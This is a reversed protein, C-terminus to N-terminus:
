NDPCVPSLSAPFLASLLDINQIEKAGRTPLFHLVAFLIDWISQRSTLSQSARCSQFVYVSTVIGSILIAGLTSNLVSMDPPPLAFLVGPAPEKTPDMVPPVLSLTPSGSSISYIYRLLQMYLAAQLKELPEFQVCYSCISTIVDQVPASGTSRPNLGPVQSLPRSHAAARYSYDYRASDRYTPTQLIQVIFVRRGSSAHVLLIHHYCVDCGSDVTCRCGLSIPGRACHYNYNVNNM